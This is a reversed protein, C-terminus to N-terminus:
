ARTAHRREARTRSREVTGRPVLADFANSRNCGPERRSADGRGLIWRPGRGGPMLASRDAGHHAYYELFTELAADLRRDAEPIDFARALLVRAGDGVYSAIEDATRPRGGVERLTFTVADVIDARSDILTGDLDFVVGLIM